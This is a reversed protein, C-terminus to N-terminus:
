SAERDKRRLNRRHLDPLHVFAPLGDSAPVAIEGRILPRVYRLLAPTVDNGRPDIWERPVKKEVNAVRELAVAGPRCHYDEGPERELTVMLGSQGGLALCVAEAGVRYAEDADVRSAYHMAARQLTGPVNCRAKIGTEEEVLEKLTEALGGLRVHGFSDRSKCAFLYNGTEDVLGEAAVVYALGYHRYTEMLDALFHKRNFTVEPLYILHPASGEKRRALGTAAALWGTNRGMVEMIVVRSTTILGELDLGTELVATAMFKAASGYGPCHDTFPLDNDITKPIGIVQIEYGERLALRHVQCATDMSDNGGIYFFSRIDMKKFGQLLNFYDEATKLKYRSSGLAVGPTYRLGEILDGSQASLNVYEGELIGRVGYLAGYLTGAPRHRQWEQVVGCVSNNIVATPGGSQAVVANGHWRM